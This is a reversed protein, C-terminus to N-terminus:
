SGGYDPVQLDESHHWPPDEVGVAPGVGGETQGPSVALNVGAQPLVSHALYYLPAM